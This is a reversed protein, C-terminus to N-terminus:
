ASVDHQSVPLAFNFRAIDEPQPIIKPIIEVGYTAIDRLLRGRGPNASWLLRVRANFLASAAKSIRVIGESRTSSLQEVIGIKDIKGSVFEDMLIPGRM